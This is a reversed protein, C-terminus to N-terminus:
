TETRTFLSLLFLCVFMNWFGTKLTINKRAASNEDIDRNKKQSIFYLSSPTHYVWLWDPPLHPSCSLSLFEAWILLVQLPVGVSFGPCLCGPFWISKWLPSHNWCSFVWWFYISKKFSLLFFSFLFFPSFFLLFSQFLLVWVLTYLVTMDKVSFSCFTQNWKMQSKAMLFTYLIQM